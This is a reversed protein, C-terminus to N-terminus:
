HDDRVEEDLDVKPWWPLTSVPSANVVDIQRARLDGVIGAFDDYQHQFCDAVWPFPHAPHHHTKGDPAVCQDIGILVIRRCGMHFAINIAGTASTRRVTIKEPDTQLGPPHVKQLFRIDAHKWGPGACSIKIGTYAKFAKEHHNYWRVDGFFCYQAFPAIEWSSNIAIVRHGKLQEINQGLVSPGGGIIFCTKDRWCAPVRWM